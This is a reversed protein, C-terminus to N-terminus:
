KWDTGYKRRLAVVEDLGLVCDKAELVLLNGFRESRSFWAGCASYSPAHGASYFDDVLIYCNHHMRICNLLTTLVCAMRFRGDVIVLSPLLGSGSWISSCSDTYADCISALSSQDNCLKESPIGFWRHEYVSIILRLKDTWGLHAAGTWIASGFAIDSEVCILQKVLQSKGVILTSSGGGYELVIVAEDPRACHCQEVMKLAVEGVASSRFRLTKLALWRIINQRVAKYPKAFLNVM